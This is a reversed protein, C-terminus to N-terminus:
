IFGQYKFTCFKDLMVGSMNPFADLAFDIWFIFEEDQGMPRSVTKVLKM